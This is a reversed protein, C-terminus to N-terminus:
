IWQLVQQRQTGALNNLVIMTLWFNGQLEGIRLLMQVDAIRSATLIARKLQQRVARAIRRLEENCHYFLYVQLGIQTNKEVAWYENPHTLHGSNWFTHEFSPSKAEEVMYNILPEVSSQTRTCKDIDYHFTKWKKTFAKQKSTTNNKMKEQTSTGQGFPFFWM